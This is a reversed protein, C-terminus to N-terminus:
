SRKPAGIYLFNQFNNQCESVIHVRAFSAGNVTELQGREFRKNFCLHSIIKSVQVLTKSDRFLFDLYSIVFGYVIESNPFYCTDCQKPCNEPMM